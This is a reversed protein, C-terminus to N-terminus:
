LTDENARLTWMWEKRAGTDNGFILTLSELAAAADPVTVQTVVRTEPNIATEFLIDPEVEGLGKLRTIDYKIGADDLQAAAADREREDRAYIKRSKRGEHTAISFLPTEIKFLRGETVVDRFCEWFLSYILCAIANGDPDADVAIFVRGYRMQDLNFDDGYGAGLAKIIDQVEKNEMVKKPTNKMVNIIKGRIGMLADVRGDRAAKLSSLASDGECIYLSAEESGALECDVLKSPLSSSSIQNKKRAVDRRDRARQRARSASVVKKAIVALDESNGRSAIWKSFADRLAELIAKKVAPGGLQEKTQSTFSPESVQVSVVATMGELFDSVAPREEGKKLLGKMTSFREGFSDSLARYFADEHVGGNKTNITNVYSSVSNDFDAGWSLMVEVPVRREVDKHSVTGDDNIVPVNRETYFGDTVIHIPQSLISEGRQNASVLEALGDEFHYFEHLPEKIGTEPDEVLRIEDYVEAHLSPVLYCTAKLREALDATDVPYLSQFVSDNLWVRVSTGTPYLSKEEKSRTDKSVRLYDYKDDDLPTFTSDPNDDEAFFGPTGDKFHLEYVKKNRYVKIVAMKSLHVTSSGGLGNLGGTFKESDSSFKGGSQLTGLTKYIGSVNRGNADTSSDIPIGRGNDVVEFSGDNRAITKVHSGYGSRVEDTANDQIERISNNKQSSFKYDGGGSEHGMTLNLRKILYSHSDLTQIDKSTYEPTNKATM